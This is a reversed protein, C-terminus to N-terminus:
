LDNWHHVRLGVFGRGAAAQLSGWEFRLPGIPSFWRLGFGWSSRLSNLPFVATCPDVSIDASAPKLRCYQRELNYANGVDTFVVARINLKEFIPM